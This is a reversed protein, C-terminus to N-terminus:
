ADEDEDEDAAHDERYKMMRDYIVNDLTYVERDPVELACVLDYEESNRDLCKYAFDYLGVGHGMAQMTLYHAFLEHDLPGIKLLVEWLLVDNNADFAELLEVAAELAELPLEDFGGVNDVEELQNLTYDRGCDHTDRYNAEEHEQRIAEEWYTEACWRIVKTRATLYDM